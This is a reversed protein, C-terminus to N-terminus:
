DVSVRWGPGFRKEYYGKLRDFWMGLAGPQQCDDRLVDELFVDIESLRNKPLYADAGGRMSKAFDDPSLAHNTLMVARVKKEKAMKLLDYGRVGMIDLVAVDYVKSHLLEAASDFDGATDVDCGDLAEEISELIDPEDDVALIKKDKLLGTKDM